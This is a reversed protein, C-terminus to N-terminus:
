QINPPSLPGGPERLVRTYEFANAAVARGTKTYLVGAESIVHLRVSLPITPDPEIGEARLSDRLRRWDGRAHLGTHGRFCPSDRRPRRTREDGGIMWHDIM